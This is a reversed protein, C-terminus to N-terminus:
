SRRMSDLSRLQFDRPDDTTVLNEVPIEGLMSAAPDLSVTVTNLEKMEYFAIKGQTDQLASGTIKEQM